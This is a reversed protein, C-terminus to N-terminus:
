FDLDEDSVAVGVPAPDGQAPESAVGSPVASVDKILDAIVDPPTPKFVQELVYWENKSKDPNKIRTMEEETFQVPGLFNVHYRRAKGDGTSKIRWDGGQASGPKNGTQQSVEAFDQLMSVPGQLIKIQKDARDIVNMAFRQDPDCKLVEKLYELNSETVAGSEDILVKAIVYKKAPKYYFRYYGYAKGVPRLLHVSNNTFKIFNLPRKSESSQGKYNGKGGSSPLNEWNITFSM